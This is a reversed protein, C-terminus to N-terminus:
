RDGCCPMEKAAMVAEKCCGPVSALLAETKKGCEKVGDEGTCVSGTSALATECCDPIQAALEASQQCCAPMAAETAPSQCGAFLMLGCLSLLILFMRM